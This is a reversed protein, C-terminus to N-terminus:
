DQKEDSEDDTFSEPLAKETKVGLEKLKEAKRILNDKGSSLKKHASQYTNNLTSLQNGIKELDQLFNVFKDFLAGGQRAIELANKTQKEHKWLSAVTRLTALLTTPSVIVIKREWGFNFLESDNQLALSFASELPMFLLVFDPADLKSAGLYNKDSLGKIHDRISEIHSKLYAPRKDEEEENIYRDYAILSVKSDIILHKKDPLKVIVDPRVLVGGETRDTYQTEYELGKVLGSQELVRDLILEGWNGMKKSDSRLAKTLHSAEESIQQNLEKLMKLEALLDTRDKMGKEYSEQVKKEFDGLKERLPKLIDELNKQQMDTVERSSQKLLKNAIAEFDRTFKEQLEEIEKKQDTLKAQLNKYEVEARALRDSLEQKRQREDRLEKETEELDSKLINVQQEMAAKEKESSMREEDRQTRKRGTLILMVLVGIAAGVVVGVILAMIDM